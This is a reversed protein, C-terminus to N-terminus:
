IRGIHNNKLNDLGVSEHLTIKVRRIGHEGCLPGLPESQSWIWFILQTRSTKRTLRPLNTTLCIAKFIQYLKWWYYSIKRMNPWGPPDRSFLGIMNSCIPCNGLVGPPLLGGCLKWHAILRASSACLTGGFKPCEVRNAVCEGTALHALLDPFPWILHFHRCSAQIQHSEAIEYVMQNGVDVAIM